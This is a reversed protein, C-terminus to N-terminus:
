IHQILYPRSATGNVIGPRPGAKALGEEKALGVPSLDAPLSDRSWESLGPVAHGAVVLGAAPQAAGSSDIGATWEAM